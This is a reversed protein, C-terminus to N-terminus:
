ECVLLRFKGLGTTQHQSIEDRLKHTKQKLDYATSVPINYKRIVEGASLGKEFDEVIKAKENFTLVIRRRKVRFKESIRQEEAM